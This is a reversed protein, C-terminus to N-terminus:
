DNGDERKKYPKDGNHLWLEHLALFLRQGTKRDKKEERIIGIELFKLAKGKKM